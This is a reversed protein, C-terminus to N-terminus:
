SCQVPTTEDVSIPSTIMKGQIFIRYLNLRQTAEWSGNQSTGRGNKEQVYDHGKPMGAAHSRTWNNHMAYQSVFLHM